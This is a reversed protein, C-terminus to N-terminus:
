HAYDSAYPVPLNDIEEDKVVQIEVDYGEGDNVYLLQTGRGESRFLAANIAKKLAILGKRNGLIIAEMHSCRQEYIHLVPYKNM